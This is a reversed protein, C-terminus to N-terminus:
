NTKLRYIDAGLSLRRDLRLGFQDGVKLELETYPTAGIQLSQVEVALHKKGAYLIDGVTFRCDLTAEVGVVNERYVHIVRALKSALGLKVARRMLDTVLLEQLSQVSMKLFDVYDSIQKASAVTAVRTHAAQNRYEILSELFSDATTGNAINQLFETTPQSKRICNFADAFGIGQFVKNIIQPRFNSSEILFADPLLTYPMGRLGDALGSSISREELKPFLPNKDSWKILIQGVGVRHQLRVKEELASYTSCLKPLFALYEAIIDCLSDEFLAYIRSIAACHDFVQWAVKSPAKLVLSALPSATTFSPGSAIEKRLEDQWLVISKVEDLERHVRSVSAFM